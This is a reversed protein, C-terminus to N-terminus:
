KAEARAYRRDGIGSRFDRFAPNSGVCALVRNCMAKSNETELIEMLKM